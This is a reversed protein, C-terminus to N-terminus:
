IEVHNNEKKSFIQGMSNLKIQILIFYVAHFITFNKYRCFESGLPKTNGNM